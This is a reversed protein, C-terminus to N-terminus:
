SSQTVKAGLYVGNSIGMLTLFGTPIEPIVYTTLVNMLVFVATILTFLLMQFRAVDIERTVTGDIGVTENVILDTWRPIQDDPPKKFNNARTTATAAIDSAKAAMDSAVAHEAVAVPSPAAAAAVAAAKKAAEISAQDAATQATTAATQASTAQSAMHAKAGLTAAGAIGLLVLTGNTIEILDGSLAMVYVASAAVVLTWLVIQFQSLSAYGTPTSIIRLLASAKMIGKSDQLRKTACINLGYLVVVITAAGLILAMWPSTIGITATVDAALKKDAIAVIRVDVLPVQPLVTEVESGAPVAQLQKPITAAVTWSTGDSNRDLRDPRIEKFPTKNEQTTKWRFCVFFSSKEAIAPFTKVTFQVVGGQPQWRKRQLSEGTAQVVSAISTPNAGDIQCGSTKPQTGPAAPAPPTPAATAPTAPGATAPAAPAASTPPNQALGTSIAGATAFLCLWMACLRWNKNGM